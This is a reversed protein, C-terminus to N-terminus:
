WRNVNINPVIFRENTDSKIKFLLPKDEKYCEDYYLKNDEDLVDELLRYDEAGYSYVYVDGVWLGSEKLEDEEFITGYDVYVYNVDEDYNTFTIEYEYIVDENSTYYYGEEDYPDDSIKYEEKLDGEVLKGTATEPCAVKREMIDKMKSSTIRQQVYVNDSEKGMLFLEDSSSILVYNISFSEQPKKTESNLAIEKTEGANIQPISWVKHESVLCLDYVDNGTSNTIKATARDVDFEVEFCGKQESNKAGSIMIKSYASLDEFKLKKDNSNELVIDKMDYKINVNEDDYIQFPSTAHYDMVDYNYTDELEIEYRGSSENIIKKYIEERVLGDCTYEKIYCEKIECADMKIIKSVGLVIVCFVLSAAPMVFWIYRRKDLKKLILYIVISSIILYVVAIVIYTVIPFEKDNQYLNDIVESNFNTKGRVYKEPYLSFKSDQVDANLISICGQGYLMRSHGYYGIDEKVSANYIDFKAYKGDESMGQYDYDLIDKFGALTKEAKSGTGIIIAGGNFVYDMIETKREKSLTSFDFDNIIIAYINKFDVNKDYTIKSGVINIEKEEDSLLVVKKDVETLNESIVTENLKVSVKEQGDEDSVLVRDVEDLLVDMDYFLQKVYKEGARIEIIENTYFETGNYSDEVVTLMGKFDSNNINECTIQLCYYDAFNGKIYVQASVNLGYASENKSFAAEDENALVYTTNLGFLASLIIMFFIVIKKSM